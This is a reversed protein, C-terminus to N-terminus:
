FKFKKFYTIELDIQFRMSDNERKLCYGKTLPKISQVIMDDNIIPFHRKANQEEVWEEIEEYFVSNELNQIKDEGFFEKSALIFDYKKISDGNIYTKILTESPIEEISFNGMEGLFNVNLITNDNKHEDLFSQFYDVLASMIM